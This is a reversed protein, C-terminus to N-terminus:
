RYDPGELTRWGGRRSPSTGGGGFRIGAAALLALGLATVTRRLLFM